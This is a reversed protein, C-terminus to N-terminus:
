NRKRWEKGGRNKFMKKEQENREGSRGTAGWPDTPQKGTVPKESNRKEQRRRASVTNTFM